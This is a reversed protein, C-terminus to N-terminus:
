EVSKLLIPLFLERSILIIPPHTPTNTPQAITTPTNTAQTLVTPTNTSQTNTAQAIATPTNTPTLTMNTPEITPTNTPTNTPEITPEITPKITPTNTPQAITTPTASAEITPTATPPVFATPTNSPPIIVSITADTHCGLISNGGFTIDSQRPPTFNFALSTIPTAAQAALEIEAFEFTGTPLNSFTGAVIDISGTINSFSEALILPLASTLTMQEVHLISPDFNVYAAVGDVQHSDAQVQITLIATDGVMVINSAPEFVLCAHDQRPQSSTSQHNLETLTFAKSYAITILFSFFLTLLILSTKITTHNQKM